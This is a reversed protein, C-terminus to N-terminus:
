IRTKFYLYSVYIALPFWTCGFLLGYIMILPQDGKYTKYRWEAVRMGILIFDFFSYLLVILFLVDIWTM